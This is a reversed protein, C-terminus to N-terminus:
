SNRASVIWAAAPMFVGQPTEYSRIAARVAAVVAETMQPIERLVRGLPGVRLTLNVTDEVSAGGIAADFPTIVIDAFGADALIARVRADDAFAFPGPATPDAPPMPPLLPAAAGMPERMWPNEHFPRWCVFALRGGRKLAARINAFAAPPDAFFMVGFRSFAADFAGRGLDATQADLERFTPTAASEPTPRRRAVELMPRSIDVGVVAGSPGVREALQLTTDGCGCGIDLVREGAAPALVRQAESGLIALQRDLQAQREVWTEGAGTNWYDIQADNSPPAATLSMLIIEWGHDRFLTAVHYISFM